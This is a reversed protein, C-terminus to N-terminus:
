VRFYKREAVAIYKKENSKIASLCQESFKNMKITSKLHLKSVACWKKKEKSINTSFLIQILAMLIIFSM